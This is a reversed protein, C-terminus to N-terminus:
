PVPPAQGSPIDRYVDVYSQFGSKVIVEYINDKTVPVVPIFLCKVTGTTVKGSTLESLSYDKLATLEKGQLLTDMVEVANPALKRFDKFVTITLEGKVISNCGDATADQGSVPVRLGHSKLVELAALGTGDNSAVVGDIKKGQNAIISEMQKTADAPDWNEVWKDGVIKVLGSDIYKQLIDTQGKRFLVANNDVPSGALLAIKAPNQKTWKGGDIDLAKLIGAAQQNGVEVNNFSVYAGIKSTKILRDYAVVTVGANAAKEVAPVIADGDQALIILGKAGKAVLNNIQSNQVSANGKADTTIVEYGKAELLTHLLANENTWRETAFDSFSLGIKIKQGSPAIVPKNSTASPKIIPATSLQSITPEVTSVTPTAQNSHPWPLNQIAFILAIMALGAIMVWMYKKWPLPPKPPQILAEIRNSANVGKDGLGRLVDIVRRAASWDKLRIATMGQEVYLLIEKELRDEQNPGDIKKEDDHKKKKEIEEALGKRLEVATKEGDWPRKEPDKDLMRTLLDDLWEPATPLQSRLSTGPPLMKPNRGTLMEFLIIGLAYVDSPPTLYINSNSHEPSMYAPTGPHPPPNSLESRLSPGGPVQALGLDAVIAQGDSDFLINSPKLDRHIVDKAHLAALGEAIDIGIRATEEPSFNRGNVKTQDMKQRLSGGAAYEMVLYLTNDVERFDYVRILHPNSFWAMLQSEQRFRKQYRLYDTSGLGIEDHLLVKIARKSNVGTNTALYVEGFSGQGISKEIRCNELIIDKENFKGM